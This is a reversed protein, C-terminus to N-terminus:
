DARVHGRAGCCCAYGHLCACRDAALWIGNVERPWSGLSSSEAYTRVRTPLLTREADSRTGLYMDTCMRMCANGLIQLLSRAHSRRNDVNSDDLLNLRGSVVWVKRFPNYLVTCSDVCTVWTSLFDWHLGDDSGYILMPDMTRPSGIMLYRRAYLSDPDRSHAVITFVELETALVVNTGNLVHELKPKRWTLGDLSEAICVHALIGIYRACTYRCTHYICMCVIYTTYVLVCIYWMLFKNSQSDFVVGGKDMWASFLDFESSDMDARAKATAKDSLLQRSERVRESTQHEWPMDPLVAHGLTKASHFVRRCNILEAVIFDDVFLQRGFSLPIWGSAGGDDDSCSANSLPPSEALFVEGSHQSVACRQPLRAGNCLGAQTPASSSLLVQACAAHEAHDDLAAVKSTPFLPLVVVRKIESSSQGPLVMFTQLADYFHGQAAADHNQGYRASDLFVKLLMTYEGAVSAFAQM